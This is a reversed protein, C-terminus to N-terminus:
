GRGTLRVHYGRKNAKKQKRTHKEL